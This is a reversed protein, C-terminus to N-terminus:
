SYFPGLVLVPLVRRHEAAGACLDQSLHSPSWEKDTMSGTGAHGQNPPVTGADLDRMKIVRGVPRPHHM